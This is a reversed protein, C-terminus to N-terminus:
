HSIEEIVDGDKARQRHKALYLPTFSKPERLVFKYRAVHYSPDFGFFNLKM